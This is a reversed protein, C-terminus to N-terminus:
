IKNRIEQIEKETLKNIIEKCTAIFRPAKEIMENYLSDSVNRNTYYQVDIRAKMSKNLLEIEDKTIHEKLFVEALAITCSHIECKVGIKM